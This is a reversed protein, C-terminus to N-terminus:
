LSNVNHIQEWKVSHNLDALSPARTNLLSYIGCNWTDEQRPAQTVHLIPISCVPHTKKQMQRKCKCGIAALSPSEILGMAPTNLFQTVWVELKYFVALLWLKATLSPLSHLIQTPQMGMKFILGLVSPWAASSIFAM